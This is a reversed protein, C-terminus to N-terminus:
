HMLYTIAPGLEAAISFTKAPKGMTSERKLFKYGCLIHKQELSQLEKNPIYKGLILLLDLAFSSVM